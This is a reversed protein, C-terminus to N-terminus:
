ASPILDEEKFQIKEIECMASFSKDRSLADLDKQKVKIIETKLDQLGERLREASDKDISIAILSLYQL